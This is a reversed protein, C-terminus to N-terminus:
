GHRGRRRALWPVGGITLLLPLMSSTEPVQAAVQRPGLEYGGDQFAEVLDGTDFEGDGNWDGQAWGSNHPEGDEYHGAAFVGVLDGSDFVGDLNADGIYTRKVDRLWTTVDDFDVRFNGDIDYGLATVDSDFQDVIQDIDQWDLVADHNVDGPAGVSHVTMEISKVVATKPGPINQDFGFFAVAPRGSPYTGDVFSLQPESPRVAGDEWVSVDLQSGITDFQILFDTAYPDFSTPANFFTLSGDADWKHLAIEGFQNLGGYYNDRVGPRDGGPYRATVGLSANQELRVHMLYSADQIVLPRGDVTPVIAAGWTGSIQLGEETTEMNGRFPELVNEGAELPELVWTLPSEGDDTFDHFIRRQGQATAMNLLLVVGLLGTSAQLMLNRQVMQKEGDKGNCNLVPLLM